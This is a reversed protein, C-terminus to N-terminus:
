SRVRWSVTLLGSSRVTLDYTIVWLTFLLIRIFSTWVRFELSSRGNETVMEFPGNKFSRFHKLLSDVPVFNSIKWKQDCVTYISITMETMGLYLQTFNFKYLKLLTHRIQVNAWGLNMDIEFRLIDKWIVHSIIPPPQKRNADGGLRFNFRFFLFWLRM